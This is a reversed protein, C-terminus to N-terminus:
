NEQHLFNRTAFIANSALSSDVISNLETTLFDSNQACIKSLLVNLAFM